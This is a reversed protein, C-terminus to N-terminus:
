RFAELHLVRFREARTIDAMSSTVAFQVILMALLTAYACVFFILGLTNAAGPREAAVFSFLAYSAVIGLIPFGSAVILSTSIGLQTDPWPVAIAVGYCCMSVVGAIGGGFWLAPHRM